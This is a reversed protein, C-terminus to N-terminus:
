GKWEKIILWWIYVFSRKILLVHISIRLGLQLKVSSSMAFSQRRVNTLLLSARPDGPQKNTQENTQWWALFPGICLFITISQGRTIVDLTFSKKLGSLVLFFFNITWGTKQMTSAPDQEWVRQLLWYLYMSQFRVQLPGEAGGQHRQHPRQPRGLRGAAGHGLGGDRRELPVSVRTIIIMIIIVITTIFTM